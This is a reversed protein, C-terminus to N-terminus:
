EKEFKAEVAANGSIGQDGVLSAYVAKVTLRASPNDTWHYQDQKDEEDIHTSLIEYAPNIKFM